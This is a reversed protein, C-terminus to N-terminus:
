TKAQGSKPLGFKWMCTNYIRLGFLKPLGPAVWVFSGMLRQVFMM